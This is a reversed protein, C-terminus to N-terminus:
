KDSGLSSKDMWRFHTKNLERKRVFTHMLAGVKNYVWYGVIGLEKAVINTKTVLIERTMGVKAIHNRKIAQILENNNNVRCSLFTATTGVMLNTHADSGAVGPKNITKALKKAQGNAVPGSYSNFTEVFDFQNLLEKQKKIINTHMIAFYGTGYPHAPGLIGGLGHVEEILHEVAMGRIEILRSKMGEPLIVLIHGGNRTDYEIGKFVRFDGLEQKQLEPADRWARYGNYSNHDTVVMGDFGEAKLKRAYDMMGVKADISGEKTHCHMDLKM